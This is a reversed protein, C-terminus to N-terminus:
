IKYIVEDRMKEIEAQENKVVEVLLQDELGLFKNLFIIIKEIEYFIIIGEM